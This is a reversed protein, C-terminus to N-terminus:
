LNVTQLIITLKKFKHINFKETFFTNKEYRKRISQKAESRCTGAKFHECLFKVYMINFLKGYNQLGHIQLTVKEDNKVADKDPKIQFNEQSDINIFSQLYM